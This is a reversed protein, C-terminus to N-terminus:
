LGLCPAVFFVMLLFALAMAAVVGVLLDEEPKVNIM